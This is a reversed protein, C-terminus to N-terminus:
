DFLVYIESFLAILAKPQVQVPNMQNDSNGSLHMTTVRSLFFTWLVNMDLMRPTWLKIFTKHVRLFFIKRGNHCSGSSFFVWSGPFIILNGTFEQTLDSNQLILIIYLRYIRVNQGFVLAGSLAHGCIKVVEQTNQM